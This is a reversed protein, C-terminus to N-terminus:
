CGFWLPTALNRGTGAASALYRSTYVRISGRGRSFIEVLGVDRIDITGLESVAAFSTFGDVCVLVPIEPYPDNITSRGRVCVGSRNALWREPPGTFGDCEYLSSVRSVVFDWATGVRSLRDIRTRDFAMVNGQFSNRRARLQRFVREVASETVVNIAELEFPVPELLLVSLRGRSEPPLDFRQEIYGYQTVRVYLGTGADVTIAFAGLSDTFVATSDPAFVRASAVPARTFADEVRGQVLVNQAHLTPGLTMGAAVGLLVGRATDLRRM